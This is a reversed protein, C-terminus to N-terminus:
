LQETPEDDKEPRPLIPSTENPYLSRLIWRLTLLAFHRQHVDETIANRSDLGMRRAIRNLYTMGTAIGGFSWLLDGSGIQNMDQLNLTWPAAQKGCTAAAREIDNLLHERSASTNRNDMLDDVPINEVSEHVPFVTIPNDRQQRISTSVARAFQEADHWRIPTAGMQSIEPLQVNTYGIPANNNFVQYCGLQPDDSIIVQLNMTPITVVAYHGRGLEEFNHDNDPETEDYSYTAHVQERLLARRLAKMRPLAHWGDASELDDSPVVADEVDEEENDDAEDRELAPLFRGDINEANFFHAELEEITCLPFSDLYSGDWQHVDRLTGRLIRTDVHAVDGLNEIYNNGRELRQMHASFESSFNGPVIVHIRGGARTFHINAILADELLEPCLVELLENLESDGPQVYAPISDMVRQALPVLLDKQQRMDLKPCRNSDLFATDRSLVAANLLTFIHTELRFYAEELCLPHVPMDAQGGTTITSICNEMGDIISLFQSPNRKAFLILSDPDKLEIHKGSLAIAQKLYQEGSGEHFDTISLTAATMSASERGDSDARNYLRDFEVSQPSVDVESSEITTMHGEIRTSVIPIWQRSIPKQKIPVINELTVFLSEPPMNVDAELNPPITIMSFEGSGRADGVDSKKQCHKWDYTLLEMSDRQYQELGGLGYPSKAYTDNAVDTYMRKTEDHTLVLTDSASFYADSIINWAEPEGIQLARALELGIRYQAEYDYIRMSSVGQPVLTAVAQSRVAEVQKAIVREIIELEVAVAQIQREKKKRVRSKLRTFDTSASAATRLADRRSELKENPWNQIDNELSM